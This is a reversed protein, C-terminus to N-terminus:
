VKEAMAKLNKLGTEFEKGIMKDMNVFLGMVKGILPQRGNMAWTVSTALGDPQLTFDVANDCKMPKSMVLRMAVKSPAAAEVIEISGTGSKKGDFTHIAGKGSAPGHYAIEAGPDRLAFPNWTNMTKLNNILEFLREPPADIRASRQTQFTNPQTSAAILVTFAAVVLGFVLTAFLDLM